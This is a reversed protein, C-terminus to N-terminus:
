GNAVPMMVLVVGCWVATAESVILLYMCKWRSFM